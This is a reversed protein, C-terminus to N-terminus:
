TNELDEETPFTIDDGMYQELAINIDKMAENADTVWSKLLRAVEVAQKTWKAAEKSAESSNGNFFAEKSKYYCDSFISTLGEVPSIRVDNGFRWELFRVGQTLAWSKMNREPGDKIGDLYAMRQLKTLRAVDFYLSRYMDLVAVEVELFRSVVELDNTALLSSEVYMRQTRDKYLVTAAAVIEPFVGDLLQDVIPDVGKTGKALLKGRYDVSNSM